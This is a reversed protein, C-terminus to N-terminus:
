PLMHHDQYLFTSVDVGDIISIGNRYPRDFVCRKVALGVAGRVYMGDWGPNTLNVDSMSINTGAFTTSIEQWLVGNGVLSFDKAGSHVTWRSLAPSYCEKNHTAPPM